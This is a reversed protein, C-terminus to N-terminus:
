NIIARTLPTNAFGVSSNASNYVTYFREMFVQGDVFDIGTTGSPSYTSLAILVCLSPDIGLDVNMSRPLIQANATLAFDTGGITFVLDALNEYQEETITLYGGDSLTAGTLNQYTAFADSSLFLNYTGSDLFGPAQFQITQGNYTITQDFGWSQASPSTTTPPAYTIEPYYKTPDIGGFTIEGNTIPATQTPEFSIAILHEPILGEAFATDVVTPIERTPYEGVTRLTLDTPGLGLIGNYGQFGPCLQAAGVGQSQLVLSGLTVTDNYEEGDVFAGGYQVFIGTDTDVTSSTVIYAFGCGAWTNSSGTDFILTYNNPPTGIGVTATYLMGEDLIPMNVPPDGGAARDIFASIRARQTEALQAAGTFNTVKVFPVTVPSQQAVIPKAAATLAAFAPLLYSSHM